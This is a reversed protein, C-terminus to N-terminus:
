NYGRQCLGHGRPCLTLVAQRCPLPQSGSCQPAIDGETAQVEMNFYWHYKWGKAKRTLQIIRIAFWASKDELTPAM